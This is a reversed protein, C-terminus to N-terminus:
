RGERGLRPICAVLPTAPAARESPGSLVVSLPLPSPPCPPPAYGPGRGRGPAPGRWGVGSSGSGGGGRAQRETSSKLASQEPAASSPSGSVPPRSRPLHLAAAPAM